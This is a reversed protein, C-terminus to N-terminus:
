ILARGGGVIILLVYRVSFVKAAIFAPVVWQM